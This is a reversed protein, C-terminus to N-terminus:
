RGPEEAVEARAVDSEEDALLRNANHYSAYARNTYSRAVVPKAYIKM